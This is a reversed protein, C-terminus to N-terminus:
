FLDTFDKKQKQKKDTCRTHHEIIYSHTKQPTKEICNNTAFYKTHWLTKLLHRLSIRNSMKNLALYAVTKHCFPTKSMSIHERLMVHIFWEACNLLWSESQQLILLFKFQRKM